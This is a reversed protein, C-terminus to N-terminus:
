LLNNLQLNLEQEDLKDTVIQFQPTKLKLEEGKSNLKIQSLELNKLNWTVEKLKIVPANLVTNHLPTIGVKFAGIRDFHLSNISLLQKTSVQIPTGNTTKFFGIGRFTIETTNKKLPISVLIPVQDHFVPIVFQDITIFLMNSTVLEVQVFTGNKKPDNRKVTLDMMPSNNKMFALRFARKTLPIFNRFYSGLLVRWM